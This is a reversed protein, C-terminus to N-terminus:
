PSKAAEKERALEQAWKSNGLIREGYIWFVFPIGSLGLAVFGLLSSAWGIGLARYMPAAAFPLAAGMVQRTLSSAANSSSAYSTYCDVLYNLLANFNLIYGLGYSIGSLAPSIWYVDPRATWASWFLGITILPGSACAPPLRRAGHHRTWSHGLSLCRLYYREFGIQFFPSILVGVGVGIFTLGEQGKNFGYTDEFIIPYSQLFIYLLSYQFALYMCTFFVLPERCLMTLPRALVKTVIHKWGKEDGDTPGEPEWSTKDSVRIQKARRDLIVDHNTEPMCAIALLMGTGGMAMGIWFSLRWGISSMGAWGSIIPGLVSGGTTAMNYALLARGRRFDGAYLDSCIGSITSPAGAGFFGNLFRFINFAAWNPALACAMMWITFGFTSVVNISRRGYQESMPALLTNGVTYGALYMSVPLVRWAFGQDYGFEQLTSIVANSALSTGSTSCVVLALAVGLIVHKRAQSWNQPNLCPEDEFSLTRNTYESEHDKEEQVSM